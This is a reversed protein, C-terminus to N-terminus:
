SATEKPRNQRLRDELLIKICGAVPIAALAGIVGAVEIGVLASIFVLLPTLENQRSQIYPQLTYNEIQYYVVFYILMVVALTPSNLLCVLIVTASSLPNGIMPVLGFLAVIGALAVPNVSVGLVNSAIELAVLCVSAAITALIVQGIVFGSVTKAMRQATKRYRAQNRKPLNSILLAFWRPGEVLMMFTMVIVILVSILAGIVRKTTDLVTSGFNSYKSAFDHAADELRQDVHYRRAARAVGSNQTQFDSVITPVDQIFTRTQNVLPPIILTFFGALVVVIFLYSVATARARSAIKLRRTLWSVVPNLALTLFFSIFILTLIHEARGVFHYALIVATAWLIARIITRNTVNVTVHNDPRM